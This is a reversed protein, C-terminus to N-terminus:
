SLDDNLRVEISDHYFSEYRIKIDIRHICEMIEKLSNSTGAQVINVTDRASIAYKNLMMGKVTTTNIGSRILIEKWSDISSINFPENNLYVTIDKIFAPGLGANTLEITMKNSVDSLIRNIVLYPKVSMKNHKRQVSLQWFTIGLALLSILISIIAIIISVNM